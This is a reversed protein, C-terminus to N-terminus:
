IHVRIVIQSSRKTEMGSMVETYRFARETSIQGWTVKSLSTECPRM